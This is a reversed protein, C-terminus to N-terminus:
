KQYVSKPVIRPPPTMNEFSYSDVNAPVLRPEGTVGGTGWHWSGPPVPMAGAYALRVDYKGDKRPVTELALQIVSQSAVAKGQKKAPGTIIQDLTARVLRQMRPSLSHAPMMDTIRGQNNVTVLVQLAHQRAGDASASDASALPAVSMLLACATGTLVMRINM